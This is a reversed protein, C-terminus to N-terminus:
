VARELHLGYELTAERFNRFGVPSRALQSFPYERPTISRNGLDVEVVHGPRIKRIKKFLTDPAPLYRLRLLEALHTLELSDDVLAHIARLESSFVLADDSSWYYLPKVGFPDRVLFLKRSEIDVFALAFIGNVSNLNGIGFHAFYHLVTETDSHGRYRGYEFHERLELHNYIEGNLVIAHRRSPTWM